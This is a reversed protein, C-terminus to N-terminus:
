YMIDLSKLRLMRADSRPINTLIESAVEFCSRQFINLFFLSEEGFNLVFKQCIINMIEFRTSVM